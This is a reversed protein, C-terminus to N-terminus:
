WLSRPNAWSLKMQSLCWHFSTDLHYFWSSSFQSFTRLWTHPQICPKETFALPVIDEMTVRATASMDTAVMAVAMVWAMLAMTWVAMTTATTIAWRTLLQLHLHSCLKQKCFIFKEAEKPGKICGQLLHSLGCAVMGQMEDALKCSSCTM